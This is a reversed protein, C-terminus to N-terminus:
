VSIGESCCLIKELELIDNPLDSEFRMIKKSCPHLFELFYAHLAQRPFNNVFDAIEHPIAYNKTKYLSDGILSCKLHSLHVRIQHTRGTKLECEIKSAFDSFKKLTKYFTVANRGVNKSVAMKVRNNKDRSILTEIKGLSPCPFSYCFCVYKRGISHAAFQKALECHTFDNKAIVLIGSTNKDIRHVIGPRYEDSGRSLARGCHYILGNVLTDSYNGAGPHVTVGAPKDVVLLNEDEYLVLFKIGENSALNPKEIKWDDDVYVKDNPKLNHGVDTVYVSNVKVHRTSILIQIKSRSLEKIESALFKDLRNKKANM